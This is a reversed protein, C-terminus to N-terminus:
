RRFQTLRDLIPAGESTGRMEILDNLTFVCLGEVPSKEVADLMRSFEPGDIVPSRGRGAHM